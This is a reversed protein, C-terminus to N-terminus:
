DAVSFHMRFNEDSIEEAKLISLSGIEKINSLHTGGCPIPACGEITVTRIEELDPLREFNPADKLVEMAQVPTLFVISVPAGEFIMKDALVQANKITSADPAKGRYGVYCPEGLWSDTTEVRSSSTRALCHDLLHAATHRRMVLKRYTWDLQCTVPGATPIGSAIKAWHIVVGQNHIAKKVDLTFETSTMRGRDSPQGGGKPHFITKDLVLYAQSGKDPFVKLISAQTIALQMQRLYLIETKPLGQVMENLNMSTAPRKQSNRLLMYSFPM